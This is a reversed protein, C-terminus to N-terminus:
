ARSPLATSCDLLAGDGDAVLLRGAPALVRAIECLLAGRRHSGAGSARMVVADLSGDGAPLAPFADDPPGIVLVRGAGAPRDEIGM